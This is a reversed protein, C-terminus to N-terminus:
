LIRHVVLRATDLDSEIHIYVSLCISIYISLYISISIYIYISLYICVAPFFITPYKKSLGRLYIHVYIYIYVTGVRTEVRIVM